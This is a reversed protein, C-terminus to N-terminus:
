CFGTILRRGTIHAGSTADNVTILVLDVMLIDTQLLTNSQKHWRCYYWGDKPPGTTADDRYLSLPM